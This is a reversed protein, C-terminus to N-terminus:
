IVNKVGVHRLIAGVMGPGEIRVTLDPYMALYNRADEVECAWTTTTHFDQEGVTVTIDKTTDHAQPVAHDHGDIYCCDWGYVTIDRYGMSYLLGLSCITISVATPVKPADLHDTSCDGVHWVDVMEADLADFVVPHCKSALLYNVARGNGLFDAVLEQPDCAIWYYWMRHLKLAGNLAVSPYYLPVDKASPGNAYVSIKGDHAPREEVMPLGRKLNDDVRNRLEDDDFGTQVDFQVPAFGDYM